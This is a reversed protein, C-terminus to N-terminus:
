RRSPGKEGAAIKPDKVGRRRLLRALAPGVGQPLALVVAVVCAGYIFYHLGPLSGGFHGRLFEGLPVLLLAGVLPGFATGLGGVTAILVIEITLVPSALMYPDAFTASRAYATGILSTLAASIAMAIAKNRLLPVGLAQAADENDRIARLRYGLPANVIALNVLICGVALALMLWFYGKLGGFQFAALDGTDRPLYLGSAGGLFDWGVVVLEAMEAFALTILAFSLHGLRFRYDIFAIAIGMAAALLAAILAGLWMNIGFHVLLASALMAGTGVFLSHALSIQGTLGGVLNWATALAAYVLTLTAIHLYYGPLVLPLLAALALLGLAVPSRAIRWFDPKM